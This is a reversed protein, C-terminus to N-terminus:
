NMEKLWEKIYSNFDEKETITDEPLVQINDILTKIAKLINEDEIDAIKEYIYDKLLDTAVTM